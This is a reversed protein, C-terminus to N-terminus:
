QGPIHLSPLHLYLFPLQLPCSLDDGTARTVERPVNKIGPYISMKRIELNAAKHPLDAHKHLLLQHHSTSLQGRGSPLPQETSRCPRPRLVSDRIITIGRDRQLWAISDWATGVDTGRLEASTWNWVEVM